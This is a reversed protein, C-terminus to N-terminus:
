TTNDDLWPSPETQSSPKSGAEWLGKMTLCEPVPIQQVDPAFHSAQASCVAAIVLALAAIQLLISRMREGVNIFRPAYKRTTFARSQQWPRRRLLHSPPPAGTTPSRNRGDAAPFLAPSLM